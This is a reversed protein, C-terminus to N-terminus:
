YANKELKMDSQLELIRKLVMTASKKWVPDEELPFCFAV